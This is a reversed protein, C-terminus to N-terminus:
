EITKALYRECVGGDSVQNGPGVRTLMGLLMEIPINTKAPSVTTIFVCACPMVFWAIQVAIAQM